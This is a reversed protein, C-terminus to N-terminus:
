EMSSTPKNMKLTYILTMLLYRNLMQTRRDEYYTETFARNIYNNKNLLDFGSLKLELARNKLMKYGVSANWLTYEQNFQSDMGNFFYQNVNTSLVVRGKLIWTLSSYITQTIFKNDIQEELDNKVNSYSASYSLSFDVNESINSSLRSGLAYTHNKAYNLRENIISPTNKYEYRTYVSFNSKILRVPFSYSLSSYLSTYKDLNVPRILQSGQSIMVNQVMTDATLITTSNGIFNESRYINSYFFLSQEKEPFRKSFSTYINNRTSQRIEPNGLRVFLPNQLNISNQMQQITPHSTESFLGIYFNTKPSQEYRFSIRPLFNLFKRSADFSDPFTQEGSLAAHQVDAGINFYKNNSEYQYDLGGIHTEYFSNFRNFLATDAFVEEEAKNWVKRDSETKTFSPEYTLMVQGNEGFPETYSVVIDMNSIKSVDDFNQHLSTVALLSDNRQNLSQYTGKGNNNSYTNLLDISFTRGEKKFTHEWLIENEFQFDLNKSAASNRLNNLLPIMSSQTSGLLDSSTSLDNLRLVPTIYLTNMSDMEFTFDFAFNHNVSQSRTNSEENYILKDATYYNRIASSTNRVNTNNIYYNGSVEIKDGWSDLYNIGFANTKAIGQKNSNWFADYRMGGGEANSRASQIDEYSFNQQNINNSLGLISIRRDGSFQNFTFGSTYRNETGYGAYAKGFAGKNAEPKTILDIALQEKGDKFGTLDSQKSQKDYVQVSKLVDAPLNQLTGKPDNSFFPKGDVLIKEVVEGNVKIVNGEITVGPLKKVLDEATADAHVKFADANFEITDGKILVKIQEAEIKVEKLTFEDTKLMIDGLDIDSAVHLERQFSVYGVYSIQLFYYSPKVLLSYSGELDTTTGFKLTTDVKDILVVTAGPLSLKSEDDKVAGTVLLDQASAM